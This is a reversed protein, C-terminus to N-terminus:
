FWRAPAMLAARAVARIAPTIAGFRCPASLAALADLTSKTQAGLGISKPKRAYHWFDYEDYDYGYRPWVLGDDLVVFDRVDTYREASGDAIALLALTTQARRDDLEDSHGRETEVVHDALRHLTKRDSEVIEWGANTVVIRGKLRRLIRARRAFGLLADAPDSVADSEPETWGLASVIEASDPPRIWGTDPDQALGDRGVHALLTRLSETASEVLALDRPPEDLIGSADLHARLALRRVPPLANLLSGIRGPAPAALGPRHFHPLVVGFRRVFEEDVHERHFPPAETRWDSMASPREGDGSSVIAVLQDGIAPTRGHTVQLDVVFPVEPVELQQMRRGWGLGEATVLSQDDRDYESHERVVGISLLYAEAIWYGPAGSPLEIVRDLTPDERVSLHAYVTPTVHVHERLNMDNVTPVHLSVPRSLSVGHGGATSFEVQACFTCCSDSWRAFSPPLLGDLTALLRPM